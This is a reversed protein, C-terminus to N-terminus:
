IKKYKKICNTINLLVATINQEAFKIPIINQEEDQIKTQVIHTDSKLNYNCKLYGKLIIQIPM